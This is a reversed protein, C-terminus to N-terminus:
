VAAWIRVLRDIKYFRVSLTIAQERVNKLIEIRMAIVKGVVLCELSHRYHGFLGLLDRGKTKWMRGSLRLGGLQGVELMGVERYGM